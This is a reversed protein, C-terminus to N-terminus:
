VKIDKEIFKSCMFQLSSIEYFNDRIEKKTVEPLVDEIEDNKSFLSLMYDASNYAKVRSVYFSVTMDLILRYDIPVLSMIDNLIEMNRFEENKRYLLSVERTSLGLYSEDICKNKYALSIAIAISTTLSNSKGAFQLKSIFEKGEESLNIYNM